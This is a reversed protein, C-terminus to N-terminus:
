LKMIYCLAYYPPLSSGAQSTINIPHAHDWVTNKGLGSAINNETDSSETAWGSVVHTHTAAGGTAGPAYTSGAGVIFRNRLDPTGNSGDCLAFGSPISVISGSWLLIMGTKWLTATLDTSLTPGFPEIDKKWRFALDENPGDYEVTVQTPRSAVTDSTVLLTFEDIWESSVADIPVTDAEILWLPLPPMVDYVVPDATYDSSRLMQHRFTLWIKLLTGVYEHKITAGYAYPM